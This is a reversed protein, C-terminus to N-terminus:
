VQTGGADKGRVGKGETVVIRSKQNIMEKIKQYVYKLWM